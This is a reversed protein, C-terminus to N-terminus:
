GVTGSTKPSKRRRVSPTACRSRRRACVLKPAYRRSSIAPSQSSKARRKMWQSIVPEYSIFRPMRCTTVTRSPEAVEFSPDYIGCLVLLPPQQRRLWQQWAPYAAVNTRYDYFLDMQIEAQEPRSLFAFEDTWLDPDYREPNPSKGVHRQQTAEFSFMNARIRDENASRDAWYAKRTDWLPGLGAEHAVADQVILARVREPHQLAMRFAITGGYDQMFLVYRELRLAETFHNMVEALHDFTYSFANAPPADSHGFGPYDPAILRYRDSLRLLLTQVMRSSSPFGHLLLM